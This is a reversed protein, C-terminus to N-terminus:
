AGANSSRELLQELAYEVTEFCSLMWNSHSAYIYYDYWYGSCMGDRYGVECRIGPFHSLVTAYGQRSWSEKDWASPHTGTKGYLLSRWRIEIDKNELDAVLNLINYVIQFEGKWEVGLDDQICILEQYGRGRGKPRELIVPVHAVYEAPVHALARPTTSIMLGPAQGGSVRIFEEWSVLKPRTFEEKHGKSM